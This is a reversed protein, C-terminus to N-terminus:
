FYPFLLLAAAFLSVFIICLSVCIKTRIARICSEVLAIGIRQAAKSKIFNSHDPNDQLFQEDFLICIGRHSPLPTIAGPHDLMYKRIKEIVTGNAHMEMTSLPTIAEPHDLMYKCIKEIVTRNAHMEM